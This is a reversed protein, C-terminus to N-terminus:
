SKASQVPWKRRGAVGIWCNIRSPCQAISFGLHAAAAIMAGNPIYIGAWAQVVHKLGYSHGAVRNPTQRKPVQHLWAVAREFEDVYAVLEVRRGEFDPRRDGGLGDVTLDPHRLMVDRLAYLSDVNMIAGM